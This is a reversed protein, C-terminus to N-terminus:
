GQGDGYGVGMRQPQVIFWIGNYVPANDQTILIPAWNNVSPDIKIWASITVPFTLNDYRNGLDIYDNVGDFQLGRGAGIEDRQAQSVGTSLFILLAPLLLLKGLM